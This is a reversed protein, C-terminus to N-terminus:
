IYSSRSAVYPLPDDERIRYGTKCVPCIAYTPNAGNENLHNKKNKDTWCAPCIYRRPESTSVFLVSGTETKVVQFGSPLEDATCTLTSATPQAENQQALLQDIFKDIASSLKAVNVNHTIEGHSRVESLAQNISARLDVHSQEASICPYQSLSAPLVSYDVGVGLMPITLVNMGWAAGLEFTVWTSALARKTLLAFLVPKNQIEEKVQIEITKGFKLKHGAVSTCLIRESEIPIGILLVDILAKALEVDLERHSIFVRM